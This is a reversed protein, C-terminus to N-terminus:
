RKDDTWRAGDWYRTGGPRDPDPYWGPGPAPPVPPGAYGGPPGAYGGPPGAYGGPPGAYGGPPGAYGVPPAGMGGEAFRVKPAISALYIISVVLGVVCFFFGVVQLVIWMTKSQGARQFAWDPHSAADVIGWVMLVLAAIWVLGLPFFIM